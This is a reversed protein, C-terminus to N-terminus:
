PATKMVAKIPAAEAKEQIRPGPNGREGLPLIFGMIHDRMASQLTPPDSIESVDLRRLVRSYGEDAWRRRYSSRQL